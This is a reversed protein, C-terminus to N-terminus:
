VVFRAVNNKCFCKHPLPIKGNIPRESALVFVFAAGEGACQASLFRQLVKPKAAAVSCGDVCPLKFRNAWQQATAQLASDLYVLSSLKMFRYSEGQQAAAFDGLAFYM